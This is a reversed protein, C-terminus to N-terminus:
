IHKIIFKHIEYIFKYIFLVLMCMEYAILEFRIMPFDNCIKEKYEINLCKLSDLVMRILYAPSYSRITYMPSRAFLKVKM